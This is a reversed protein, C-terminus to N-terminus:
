LISGKQPPPSRGDAHAPRGSGTPPGIGIVAGVQGDQHMQGLAQPDPIAGGGSRVSTGPQQRASCRRDHRREIFGKGVDQEFRHRRWARNDDRHPRFAQLLGSPTM